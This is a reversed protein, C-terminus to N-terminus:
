PSIKRPSVALGDTTMGAALGLMPNWPFRVGRPAGPGVAALWIGALRADPAPGPGAASLSPCSGSSMPLM